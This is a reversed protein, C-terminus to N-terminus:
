SQKCKEKAKNISEVVQLIPWSTKIFHGRSGKCQIEVLESDPVPAVYVVEDAMVWMNDSVKALM